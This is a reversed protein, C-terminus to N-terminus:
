QPLQTCGNIFENRYYVGPVHFQTCENPDICEVFSVESSLSNLFAIFKERACLGNPPNFSNCMDCRKINNEKM